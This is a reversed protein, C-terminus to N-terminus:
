QSESVPKITRENSINDDCQAITKQVIPLPFSKCPLLLFISSLCAAIVQLRQSLCFISLFYVAFSTIDM